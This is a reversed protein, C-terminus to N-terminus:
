VALQLLGLLLWCAAKILAPIVYAAIIFAAGALLSLKLNRNM